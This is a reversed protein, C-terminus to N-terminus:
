SAEYPPRAAPPLGGPRRTPFVPELNRICTSEVLGSLRRLTRLRLAAEVAEMVQGGPALLHSARELAIANQTSLGACAAPVGGSMDHEARAPGLGLGALRDELASRLERGVLEAVERSPSPELGFGMALSAQFRCGLPRHSSHWWGAPVYLLDRPDTLRWSGAQRSLEEMREPDKTVFGRRLPALGTPPWTLLTKSQGGVPVTLTHSGDTHIGFPTFIETGVFANFEIRGTPYGVHRLVREALGRMREWVDLNLLAANDIVLYFPRGDLRATVGDIYDALTQDSPSLVHDSQLV